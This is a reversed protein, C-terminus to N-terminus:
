SLFQRCMMVFVIHIVLVAATWIGATIMGVWIVSLSGVMGVLLLVVLSASIRNRAFGLLLEYDFAPVGGSASALRERAARVQQATERRSSPGRLRDVPPLGPPPTVDCQKRDADM